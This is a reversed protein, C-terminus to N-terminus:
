YLAHKKEWSAAGLLNYALIQTECYSSKMLMRKISCHYEASIVWSQENKPQTAIAPIFEENIEM